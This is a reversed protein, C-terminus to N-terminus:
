LKFDYLQSAREDLNHVVLLHDIIQMRILNLPPFSIQGQYRYVLSPDLEYVFIQGLFPNAHLLIVKNTLSTLM